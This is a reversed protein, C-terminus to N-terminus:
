LVRWGIGYEVTKIGCEDLIKKVTGNIFAPKEGRILANYIIECERITSLTVPIGKVTEGALWKDLCEKFKKVPAERREQCGACMCEEAVLVDLEDKTNIVFRDINYQFGHSRIIRDKKGWYGLKKMGTVSGTSDINPHCSHAMGTRGNIIWALGTSKDKCLVIGEAIRRQTYNTRKAM